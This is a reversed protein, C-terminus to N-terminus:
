PVKPLDIIGYAGDQSVIMKKGDASIEYGDISGLATEKRATLDYMPVGAEHGEHRPAIYYVTSGVSALDRYNAAASAASSATRSARGTDVKIPGDKKRARGQRSATEAKIEAEDSKPRFPSPTDKALTVFYVRAMDEYAHNWETESYIPNFDRNSLFFLYKGDGSFAPGYSGYWADTVTFKERDGRSYLYVRSLRETGTQSYAIWRSDPSWVADRIEWVKANTSRRSRKAPWTSMSCACSRTPGSSRRPIPRGPFRSSTLTPRRQDIQKPAERGNPAITYIEDEGSADSVYAILKGDPSWKANREHVGSTNTLNRTQGDKAPVTFM